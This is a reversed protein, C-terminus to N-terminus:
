KPKIIKMANQMFALAEQKEREVTKEEYAKREAKTFPIPQEYYKPPDNKNGFSYGSTAMLARYVYLGQLWLENNITEKHLEYAKKYFNVRDPEGHWFEDYSMGWLM